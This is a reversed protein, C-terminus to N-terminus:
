IAGVAALVMLTHVYHVIGGLIVFAHFVEHYGFVEPIPDPRRVAYVLGGLTYVVGSAVLMWFTAEGM